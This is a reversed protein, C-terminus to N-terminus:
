PSATRRSAVELSAAADRAARRDMAPPLRRLVRRLHRASTIWVDSSDLRALRPRQRMGTVCLVADVPAGLRLSRRVAAAQAVAQRLPRGPLRRGGVWVSGDRRWRVRGTSRKVEIAAVMPGLVVIDVDGRHGPLRAGHVVADARVRHLAEAVETEGRHGAEARRARGMLSRAGLWGLGLTALAPMSAGVGAAFAGIVCAAVLVVGALM